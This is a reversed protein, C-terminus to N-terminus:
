PLAGPAQGFGHFPCTTCTDYDCMRCTRGIHAATPAGAELLKSAIAALSQQEEPTLAELLPMLADERRQFGQLAAMQGRRTLGLSVARADDEHPQRKILGRSELRNVLRVCGSHTIELAQRLDKIACGPYKSLVLLAVQDSHAQEQSTLAQASRDTLLTGLAGLLNAINEPSYTM